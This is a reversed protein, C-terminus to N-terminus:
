SDECVFDGFPIEASAPRKFRRLARPPAGFELTFGIRLTALRVGPPLYRQADRCLWQAYLRAMEQDRTKRLRNMYKRWRHNPYVFPGREPQPGGPEGRFLNWSAGNTDIGVLDFWGDDRGPRAYMTWSQILGVSAFVRYPPSLASNEQRGADPMGLACSVALVLPLVWTLPRGKDEAVRSQGFLREWARPPIFPIWGVISVFPFLGLTFIFILSLHMAVFLMVGATRLRWHRWTFLVLAPGVWEFILISRTMWRLLEPYALLSDGVGTAYNEFSLASRLADAESWWTDNSKWYATNWYVYCVQLMLTAAAISQYRTPRAAGDLSWAGQLPVFAGWFLSLHLLSDGANLLLPNRQQLSLLFLFSLFSVTRTWRGVLLLLYLIAGLLFFFLVTSVDPAVQFLCFPSIPRFVANWVALPLVGRDTYHAELDQARIGLDTLLILALGIRFLSIARPDFAFMGQVWEGWRSRLEGNVGAITVM